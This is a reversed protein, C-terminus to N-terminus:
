RVQMGAKKAQVREIEGLGRWRRHDTLRDRRYEGMVRDQESREERCGRMLENFMTKIKVPDGQRELSRLVDSTKIM